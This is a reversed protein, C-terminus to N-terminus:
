YHFLCLLWSMISKCIRLSFTQQITFLLCMLQFFRNKVVYLSRFCDVTSSFSDDRGVVACSGLSSGYALHSGIISRKHPFVSSFCFSCLAGEARDTSPQHPGIALLVCNLAIRWVAAANHCTSEITSWSQQFAVNPTHQVAWLVRFSRHVSNMFKTSPLLRTVIKTMHYENKFSHKSTDM